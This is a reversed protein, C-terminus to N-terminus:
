LLKLTNFHMAELVVERDVKVTDSAHNLAYGDNKVAELVVERDVKLKEDVYKLSQGDQKVKVLAEERNTIITM